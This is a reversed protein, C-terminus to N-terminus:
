YEQKRQDLGSLCRIIEIDFSSNIRVDYLRVTVYLTTSNSVILLGGVDYRGLWWAVLLAGMDWARGCRPTIMVFLM